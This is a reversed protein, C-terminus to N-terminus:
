KEGVFLTVIGFTMTRFRLNTFGADGMIQMFEEPMPFKMVSAPLYSYANPDKSFFSGIKPLIKQFYVFYLKRLILNGPRTLELVVLKGNKKLVQHFQKLAEAKNVINRIGFAIFVANFISSSFPLHLANGQLLPVPTLNQQFKKKALDLMSMSFDIGMITVSDKKQRIIEATVDGTGCAADLVLDGKELCAAKVMRTRWVMDQGMSLLRNLFDYRAAIGDFMDRIFDLENNMTSLRFDPM